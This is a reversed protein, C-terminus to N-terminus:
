YYGVATDERAHLGLSSAYLLIVVHYVFGVGTESRKVLGLDWKAEQRDLVWRSAAGTHREGQHGNGAGARILILWLLWFLHRSVIAGVYSPTVRGYWM